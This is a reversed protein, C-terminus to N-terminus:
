GTWCHAASPLRDPREPSTDFKSTDMYIRPFKMRGAKVQVEPDSKAIIQVKCGLGQLLKKANTGSKPDHNEGDHPLWDTGWKYNLPRALPARNL